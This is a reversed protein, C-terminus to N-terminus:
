EWAMQSRSSSVHDWYSRCACVPCCWSADRSPHRVRSARVTLFDQVRAMVVHRDRGVGVAHLSCAGLIEQILRDDVQRDDGLSSGVAARRVHM